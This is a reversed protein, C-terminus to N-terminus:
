AIHAWTNRRLANAATNLCVGYKKAIAHIPTMGLAYEARMATVAEATLKASACREGRAVRDPMTKSGHREGRAVLEPHLRFHHRDGRPFREPYLRSPNKDGTMTRKRAVMDGHNDAVTGRRLHAPNCCPPNDCSHLILDSPWEDNALAWAVRHAKREKGEIRHTRGYQQRGRLGTWEWCDSVSTVTVNKWFRESDINTINM